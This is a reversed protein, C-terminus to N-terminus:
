GAVGNHLDSLHLRGVSGSFRVQRVRVRHDSLRLWELVWSRDDDSTRDGFIVQTIAGAPLAIYPSGASTEPTGILRWEREYTWPARKTLFAARTREEVSLSPDLRPVRQPYRVRVTTPLKDRRFGICIGRHADAYHSWMLPHKPDESFSLVRVDIEPRALPVDPASWKGDTHQVLGLAVRYVGEAPDNLNSHLPWYLRRRFFIDQTFRFGDGSLSRYRFLTNVTSM